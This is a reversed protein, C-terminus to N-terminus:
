RRRGYARRRRRPRASRWGGALPDTSRCDAQGRGERATGVRPGPRARATCAPHWASSASPEDEGGLRPGVGPETGSWVSVAQEARVPSETPWAAARASVVATLEEPAMRRVRRHTTAPASVLGNRSPGLLPRVPRRDGLPRFAGVEFARLRGSRRSGWAAQVALSGWPPVNSVSASNRYRVIVSSANASVNTGPAYAPASSIATAPAAAPGPATAAPAMSNSSVGAVPMEAPRSSRAWRQVLVGGRVRGFVSQRQFVPRGGKTASGKVVAGRQDLPQRRGICGSFSNQIRVASNQKM